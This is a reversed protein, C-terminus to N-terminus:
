ARLEVGKVWDGKVGKVKKNTVFEIGRAEFLARLEEVTTRGKGAQWFPEGLYRGLYAQRFDKVKVYGEPSLVALGSSLFAAANEPTPAAADSVGETGVSEADDDVTSAPPQVDEFARLADWAPWGAREQFFDMRGRKFNPNTDWVKDSLRRRHEIMWRKIERPVRIKKGTRDLRDIIDNTLEDKVGDGAYNMLANTVMGLRTRGKFVAFDSLDVDPLIGNSVVARDGTVLFGSSRKTGLGGGCSYGHREFLAIWFWKDRAFRKEHDYRDFGKDEMFDSFAEFVHATKATLEPGKDSPAVVLGDEFAAELKKIALALFLIRRAIEEPFVSSKPAIKEVAEDAVEVCAEVVDRYQEPLFKQKRLIQGAVVVNRGAVNEENKEDDAWVVEEILEDRTCLFRTHLDVHRLAFDM